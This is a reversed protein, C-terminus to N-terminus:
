KKQTREFLVVEQGAIKLAPPNTSRDKVMKVLKAGETSAPDGEACAAWPAIM